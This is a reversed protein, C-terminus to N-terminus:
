KSLSFKRVVEGKTNIQGYLNVEVDNTMGFGDDDMYYYGDPNIQWEVWAAGKYFRGIKVSYGSSLGEAIRRAEEPVDKLSEWDVDDKTLMALKGSEDVVEYACLTKRNIIYKTELYGDWTERQVKSMGEGLGELHPEFDVEMAMLKRYLEKAREERGNKAEYIMSAKDNVMDNRKTYQTVTGGSDIM